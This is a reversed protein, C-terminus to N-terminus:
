EVQFGIPRDVRGPFVHKGAADIRMGVQVHREPARNGRVVELRTVDRRREAARGAMDVEADLALALPETLRELEPVALHVALRQDVDAEVERHGVELFSPREVLQRAHGIVADRAVLQEHRVLTREHDVVLREELRHLDRGLGAREHHNVGLVAIGNVHEDLRCEGLALGLRLIVGKGARGLRLALGRVAGDLEGADGIAVEVDDV